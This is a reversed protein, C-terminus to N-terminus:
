VGFRGGAGVFGLRELDHLPAEKAADHLGGRLRRDEEARDEGRRGTKDIPRYEIQAFSARTAARM